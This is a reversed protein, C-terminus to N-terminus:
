VLELRLEDPGVLVSAVSLGPEAVRLGVADSLSTFGAPATLLAQSIKQRVAKAWAVDPVRAPGFLTKKRVAEVTILLAGVDARVSVEAEV